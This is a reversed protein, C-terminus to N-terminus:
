FSEASMLKAPRFANKANALIHRSQSWYFRAATRGTDCSHPSHSIKIDRCFVIVARVGIRVWLAVVEGGGISSKEVRTIKGPHLAKVELM